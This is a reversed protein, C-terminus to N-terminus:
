IIKNVIEDRYKTVAADTLNRESKEVTLETEYVIDAPSGSLVFVKDGMLLADYVDHTVLVVTRGDRGWLELFKKILRTKLSVDLGKFPEDLLMVESSYLFARAMQVRQAQGGSIETPLRKLVDSIELLKAMDYIANKRAIKDPIVNKLVFELNKEVSITKVLKDSQFIYSVNKPMNEIEGDFGSLGTLANLLTTKGVGSAGLVVNIKGGPFVTNFNKYIEKDPYSFSFNKFIIDKM